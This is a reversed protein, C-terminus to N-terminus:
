INGMNSPSPVSNGVWEIYGGQSLDTSAYFCYATARSGLRNNALRGEYSLYCPDMM